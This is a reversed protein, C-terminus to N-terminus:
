KNCDYFFDASLHLGGEWSTPLKQEFSRGGEDLPRRVEKRMRKFM